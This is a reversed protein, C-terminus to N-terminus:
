GRGPKADQWAICGRMNVMQLALLKVRLVTVVALPQPRVGIYAPAGYVSSYKVM